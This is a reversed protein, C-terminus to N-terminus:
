PRIGKLFNNTVAALEVGAGGIAIWWRLDPLLWLALGALVAVGAFWAHVQAPTPHEPLVLNWAERFRWPERAIRLTQRWDIALLLYGTAILTLLNM